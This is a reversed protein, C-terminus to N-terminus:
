FWWCIITVWKIYMYLHFDILYILVTNVVKEETNSDQTKQKEKEKGM